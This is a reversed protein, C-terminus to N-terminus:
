RVYLRGVFRHLDEYTPSDSVEKVANALKILSKAEESSLVETSRDESRLSQDSAVKESQVSESLIEQLKTDLSSM